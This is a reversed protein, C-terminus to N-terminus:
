MKGKKHTLPFLQINLQYVSDEDSDVDLDEIMESHLKQIKEIFVDYREKSIGFTLSSISREEKPINYIAQESMRIMSAQYHQIVQSGVESGSRILPDSAKWFGADNKQILSLQSLTNLADLVDEPRIPPNLFQAMEEYNENLDFMCLAERIAVNYWHKYYRKQYQKLAIHKKVPIFAILRDYREKKIKDTKASAYHVMLSLYEQELANLKMAKSFKPIMKQSLNSSGRMIGAYLGLSNYGAKQMFYRHSFVPNNEKQVTYYDRLFERYDSYDYIVLQKVNM